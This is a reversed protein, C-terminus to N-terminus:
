NLLNITLNVPCQERPLLTGDGNQYHVTDHFRRDKLEDLTWGLLRSAAPNLFQTKGEGNVAYVGEGISNTISQHFARDKKLKRSLRKQESIDTCIVVLRNVRQNYEVIPVVTAFVTWPKNNKTFSNLEGQWIEGKILTALIKIQEATSINHVRFISTNQGILEDRSYGSLQCCKDNASLLTGQLDITAVIGHKDMARRQLLLENNANQQERILEYMLSSLDILRTALYVLYQM